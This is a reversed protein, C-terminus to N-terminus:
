ESAAPALAGKLERRLMAEIEEAVPIGLATRAVAAAHAASVGRIASKVRPIAAPSMSLERVGLGVLLLAQLPDAAMEGCLSVPVGHADATRVIGDLVRLVAPHLPQYLSSVRPVVRDVALLYQILDNTGVTFFDVHPALLDATAAASPVELTIGVPVHDPLNVGAARLDDRCEGLLALARQLDSPGGVFPFMIRLPGFLSARLLARMQVRFFDPVRGLLRLAREGLAPNPSTPGGPAVDEPGVDFTRVTVPYPHLHGLLRRYAEVQQDETPWRRGRGLLYESRFLGIGEAGHALAAAAEDLFEVNGLLRVLVGDASVCPLERTDHFRQEERRDREQTERYAALVGASPEVVLEGRTGDVVVLSGPPVRRTADRLGVVAPIGFSRALISTHYTPSGADTAVALVRGWDLEAAESPTLDEAVVVFRGPLRKLSPADAAGGLNLQIRGLVDDLDTSRERLYADTFGEFLEHLQDSVTRLAWEANVHDDRIIAVARDLLLPDELMLLHADFIYAHPLGVERSLREKIAQLQRRSEAVAQSLRQVEGEVAEPPLLLRFVAVREREV